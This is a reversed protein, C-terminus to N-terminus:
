EGYVFIFHIFVCMSRFLRWHGLWKKKNKGGNNVVIDAFKVKCDKHKFKVHMSPVEGTSGNPIYQMLNHTDKKSRVFKCM